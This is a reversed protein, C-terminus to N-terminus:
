YVNSYFTQDRILVSLSHPKVQLKSDVGSNSNLILSCFHGIVRAILRQHLVLPFLFFLFSKKHEGYGIIHLVLVYNQSFNPSCNVIKRFLAGCRGYVRLWVCVSPRMVWRKEYSGINLSHLLSTYLISCLCLCNHCSWYHISWSPWRSFSMQGDPSLM